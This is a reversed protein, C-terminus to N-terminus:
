GFDIKRWSRESCLLPGYEGSPSFWVATSNLLGRVEDGTDTIREGLHFIMENVEGLPESMPSGVSLTWYVAMDNPLPCIKIIKDKVEFWTFDYAHTRYMDLYLAGRGGWNEFNMRVRKDILFDADQKEMDYAIRLLHIDVLDGDRHSKWERSREWTKNDPSILTKAHCLGSEHFSLKLWGSMSSRTAYLDHTNKNCFFSWVESKRVGNVQIAFRFVTPM